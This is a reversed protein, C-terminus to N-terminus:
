DGAIPLLRYRVSVEDVSLVAGEALENEMATVVNLLRKTALDPKNEELRLNIVSPKKFGSIALLMSFDIDQTIIVRDNERAYLLIETDKSRIDMIESVRIVDWELNRLQEVTLPSINM